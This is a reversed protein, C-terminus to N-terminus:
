NIFFSLVILRGKPTKESFHRVYNEAIPFEPPKNNVDLINITVMTQATERIPSGSDVALVILEYRWIKSIDPDLIAARSVSILGSRYFFFFIM